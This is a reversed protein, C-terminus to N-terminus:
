FINKVQSLWNGKSADLWKIDKDAKFWTLQRKAYRRTNQKILEWADEEKIKGEILAFLEKYGVTNLAYHNKYPYVKQAEEWFDAMKMQETRQNIRAYLEERPWELAIKHVTYKQELKDKKGLFSSYPKGSAEYVELARLLRQPNQLAVKEYWEPDVNKLLSQLYEIGHLQYRANLDERVSTPVEPFDDLGQLWAKLYLGSGGVAVVHDHHLWLEQAKQEADTAFQGASYVEDLARNAVFHHKILALEEQTPLAAGIKLDGYFQRSDFNIIECHLHAAFQISFSSKGSATPGAVVWLHKKQPRKSM